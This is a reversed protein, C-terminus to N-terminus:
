TNNKGTLDFFKSNLSSPGVIDGSKQNVDKDKMRIISQPRM